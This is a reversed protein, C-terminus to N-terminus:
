KVVVGYKEDGGLDTRKLLERLIAEDEETSGQAETAILDIEEANFRDFDLMVVVKAKKESERELAVVTLVGDFDVEFMVEIEVERKRRKPLGNLELRGLVRNKSAVLSEGEFVIIVVKEQEDMMTTIVRMKVTPIATGKQIVKEFGGGQTEIGLSLFTVDVLSPFVGDYDDSVFHAQLAAGYVVAEDSAFEKAQLIKRGRLLGELIPQVIGTKSPNGTLMIAKVDKEGIKADELVQKVLVQIRDPTTVHRLHEDKLHTEGLTSDTQLGITELVGNLVSVVAISSEQEGLNYILFNDERRGHRAIMTDIHHAIGAATEESIFRKVELGALGAAILVIQQQPDAFYSPVSIVASSVTQNLQASAINRLHTLHHSLIEAPTFYQATGNIHLKVSTHNDHSVVDYRLEKIISQLSPDSCSLGLILSILILIKTEHPRSCPSQGSTM